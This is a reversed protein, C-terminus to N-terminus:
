VKSLQEKDTLLQDLKEKPLKAFAEDTPAFLTFPGQGSLTEALGGAARFAARLSTFRVVYFMRM